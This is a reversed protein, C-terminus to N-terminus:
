SLLIYEEKRLVSEDVDWYRGEIDPNFKHDKGVESVGTCVWETRIPGTNIKINDLVRYRNQKLYLM